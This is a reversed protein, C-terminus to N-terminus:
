WMNGLIELFALLLLVYSGCFCCISNLIAVIQESSPICQNIDHYRLLNKLSHTRKAICIWWDCRLLSTSARAGCMINRINIWVCFRRRRWIPLNCWERTVIPIGGNANSLVGNSISRLGCERRDSTPHQSMSLSVEQSHMNQWLWAQKGRRRWGQGIGVWFKTKQQLKCEWNCISMLLIISHNYDYIFELYLIHIHKVKTGCTM